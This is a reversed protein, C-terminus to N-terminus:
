ENKMILEKLEQNGVFIEKHETFTAFILINVNEHTVDLRSDGVIDNINLILSFVVDKLFKENLEVGSTKIFKLVAIFTYLLNVDNKNDKILSYIYNFLVVMEPISKTEDMIENPIDPISELIKLNKNAELYVTFELRFLMAWGGLYTLLNDKVFCAIIEPKFLWNTIYWTADEFQVEKRELKMIVHECVFWFIQMLSKQKYAQDHSAMYNQLLFDIPYMARAPTEVKDSMYFMLNLHGSRSLNNIIQDQYVKITFLHLIFRQKEMKDHDDLYQIISFIRDMDLNPILRSEYMLILGQIYYSYLSNQEMLKEFDKLIFEVLGSKFLTMMCYNVLQEIESEAEIKIFPLVDPIVKMIHPSLEDKIKRKSPARRLRDNEDDLIENLVRLVMYYNHDKYCEDIYTKWDMIEFLYMGKKDVFLLGINAVAQIMNSYNTLNKEKTHYATLDEKPHDYLMFIYESDFDKSEDTSSVSKDHLSAEKYFVKAREIYERLKKSKNDIKSKRRPNPSTDAAAIADEIDLVYFDAFKDYLMLFGGVFNSVHLARTKLKLEILLKPEVYRNEPNVALEYAFLTRRHVVCLVFQKNLEDKFSTLVVFSENDGLDEEQHESQAPAVTPGDKSETASLASTLGSLISTDKSIVSCREDFDPPLYVPPPKLYFKQICSTYFDTKSALTDKMEFIQIEEGGSVVLLDTSSSFPMASLHPITNPKTYGIQTSEIKLKDFQMMRNIRSYMIRGDSDVAMVHSWQKSGRIIIIEKQCFKKCFNLKKMIREKKQIKFFHMDGNTMGVIFGETSFDYFMASPYEGGPHASIQITQYRETLTKDWLMILGRETAVVVFETNIDGVLCTIKGYNDNVFEYFNPRLKRLRIESNTHAESYEKILDLNVALKKKNEKIEKIETRYNKDFEIFQDKIKNYFMSALKSDEHSALNKKLMKISSGFRAKSGRMRKSIVTPSEVRAQNPLTESSEESDSIDSYVEAVIARSAEASVSTRGLNMFTSKVLNAALKEIAMTDNAEEMSKDETDRRTISIIDMSISNMTRGRGANELDMDVTQHDFGDQISGRKQPIPLSPTPVVLTPKAEIKIPAPKTELPRTQQKTDVPKAIVPEAPKAVKPDIPKAILPEAPKIPKTDAPKIPKALEKIIPPPTPPIMDSVNKSLEPLLNRNLPPPEIVLKPPPPIVTPKPPEYDFDAFDEDIQEEPIEEPKFPNQALLLGLNTKGTERRVTEREKILDDLKKPDALGPTVGSKKREQEYERLTDDFNSLLGKMNM